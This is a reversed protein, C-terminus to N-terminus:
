AVKLQPLGIGVAADNYQQKVAAEQSQFAHSQKLPIRGMHPNSHFTARPKSFTVSAPAFYSIIAEIGSVVIDILPSYVATLPIVALVAELTNLADVILASAGGSKWQAEATQLATLAAQLEAVWPASGGVFGLIGGLAQIIVSLTSSVSFGCGTAIFTMPMTFALATGAMGLRQLLTRRNLM